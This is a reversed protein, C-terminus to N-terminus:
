LARDAKSRSLRIRVQIISPGSVHLLEPGLFSQTKINKRARDKPLYASDPIIRARNVDVCAASLIPCSYNDPGVLEITIIKKWPLLPPGNYLHAM